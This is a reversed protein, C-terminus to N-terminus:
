GRPALRSPHRHAVKGKHPSGEKLPSEEMTRLRWHVASLAFAMSMPVLAYRKYLTPESMAVIVFAVFGAFLSLALLHERGRGSHIVARWAMTFMSGVVLVIGLLGFIGSEFWRGLFLNHVQDSHGGHRDSYVTISANDLGAGVIPDEKIRKWAAEFTDLRTLFTNQGYPAAPDIAEPLRAFQTSGFGTSAVAVVAVVASLALGALVARALQRSALCVALACVAALGAGISGSLVLGAVIGLLGALAAFKHRSTYVLALAPALAIASLGGLDNVHETLGTMRGSPMALNLGIGLRQLIVSIDHVYGLKQAIAWIGCVAAGFVWCGVATRIQDATRLVMTGVLFWVILLYVVRALIGLSALPATAHEITAVLAGFTFLVVGLVFPGPLPYFRYPWNRLAEAFALAAAALFLMDSVTFGHVRVVLWSMTAMGAYYLARAERHPCPSEIVTRDAPMM